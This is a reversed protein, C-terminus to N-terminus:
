PSPTFVRETGSLAVAPIGYQLKAALKKGDDGFKDFIAKDEATLNRPLLFGKLLEGVIHISDAASGGNGCVVIKGGNKLRYVSTEIAIKLDDILYQLANEKLIKDILVITSNKM